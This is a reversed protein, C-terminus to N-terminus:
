RGVLLPYPNIATAPEWWEADATTRLVAFHLHPGAPDANGSSGVTGLPQGRVVQQGEALGPAYDQLHAYYHITRRDPSRVYVTNGGADSRFLREITGPAAAVVPTGTPAMIDIADHIRAGEGREDTFSDTLQEAAVGAVPILLESAQGAPVTEPAGAAVPLPASTERAIPENDPLNRELYESGLVIWAASTLTATAAITLLRDALNLPM